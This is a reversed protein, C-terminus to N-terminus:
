VHARGIQGKEYTMRGVFFLLKEDNPAYRNRLQQISEPSARNLSRLDIGNAIIDIKDDPVGFYDQVEHRMFQSCAIVRWAEYCTHGEVSNIQRSTENTLNGQHRGRETAHVTALLPTKWEHKLTVSAPGTLWDHNHILDYKHKWALRRAQTLLASNGAVASNYYDLHSLPPTDVRYVSLFENVHEEADGGGYRTSLVDVYIPEGDVDIQPLYPALEAVHKGMGGVVYPPYEWSIILIRM